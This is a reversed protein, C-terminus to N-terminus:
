FNEKEFQEIKKRWKQPVEVAARKAPSFCVMTVQCEAKISNNVVLLQQMTVSKNGIATVTSIVEPKDDILVPEIYDIKIGAMVLGETKWDPEKQLVAKFYNLRALDLYHQYVANNM